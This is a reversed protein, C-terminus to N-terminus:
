GRDRPTRKGVFVGEPPIFLASCYHRRLAHFEASIDLTEEGFFTSLLMGSPTTFHNLASL